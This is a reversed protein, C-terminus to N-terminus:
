KGGSGFSGHARRLFGNYGSIKHIRKIEAQRAAKRDKVSEKFEAQLQKRSTSGLRSKETQNAALEKLYRSFKACIERLLSTEDESLPLHEIAKKLAMVGSKVRRKNLDGDQYNKRYNAPDTVTKVVRRKSVPTAPQRESKLWVKFKEVESEQLEDYVNRAKVGAKILQVLLIKPPVRLESALSYLTRM